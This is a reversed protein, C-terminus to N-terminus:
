LLEVPAVWSKVLRSLRPSFLRITGHLYKRYSPYFGPESGIEDVQLARSLEKLFANSMHLRKVGAFSRLLEHWTTGDIAGNELETPLRGRYFYLELEEVGSLAPILGSCIQAVCDIQWDLQKCQVTVCLTFTKNSRLSDHHYTAICVFDRDFTVRSKPSKFGETISIILNFLHPLAFAIQNFLTIDLQQLLPARTQALLCELYISVGKFRLKKLNTLTVPTRQEGLLERETSPRPIPTSFYISLEELRPLSSLRAASLRPRFYGSTQIDKLVLTVLSVTSTLVRLRRPSCIGPLTLQRLNPALFAKPLTPTTIDNATPWITLDLHELIPFHKDMHVFCQHLNSPSLHLSIKFLRDHLRLAHSFGLEDRKTMSWYDVDLPLPPLHDPTDVIPSNPTCRIQMGLHFTSGFILHRWRQCVHSLKLWRLRYNWRFKDYLRDFNFIDLLIDDNLWHIAHHPVNYARESTPPLLAALQPLKLFIPISLPLATRAQFGLVRTVDALSQSRGCVFNLSVRHKSNELGVARNDGFKYPKFKIWFKASVMKSLSVERIILTATTHTRVYMDLNWLVIDREKFNHSEVGTDGEFVLELVSTPRRKIFYVSIEKLHIYRVQQEGM